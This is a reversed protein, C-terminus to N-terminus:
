INRRTICNWAHRIEKQFVEDPMCEIKKNEESYYVPELLDINMDKARQRIYYATNGKGLSTAVLIKRSYRGGFKTAVANLKYLEDIGVRGNKCSIFVPVVGHMMMVDIENETDYGEQKTHIDGDWDIYVGTMVDNYVPQNHNDTARLAYLYVIMELAQGAKTLCRKVQDNKYTVTIINDDEYVHALNYYALKKIVGSIPKYEENEKALYVDLTNKNVSSTLGDISGCNEIAEFINIQKNWSRVGSGKSILRHIAWMSEIDKIFDENMEWSQCGHDSDALYVIDGGFARINEEISIMPADNETILNGDADCDIIKNNKLNFRHMQIGLGKFREFVVGMAVLCLDDGGTLDFVFSEDDEIRREIVKTIKEVIDNLDDTKVSVTEFHINIGRDTFIREYRLIYKEMVKKDKGIFIVKDANAAFCTCIDEISEKDFFEICTM